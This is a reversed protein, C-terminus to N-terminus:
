KANPKTIYTKNSKSDDNSDDVPLPMAWFGIKKKIEDESQRQLMRYLEEESLDEKNFESAAVM